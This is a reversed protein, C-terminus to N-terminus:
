SLFLSTGSPIVPLIVSFYPDEGPLAIQEELPYVFATDVGKQVAFGRLLARCRQLDEDKFACQATLCSFSRIQRIEIVDSAQVHDPVSIMVTYTDAPADPSEPTVFYGFCRMAAPDLEGMRIREAAWTGMIAWAEVEPDVDHKATYCAVRLSPFQSLSIKLPQQETMCYKEKTKSYIIASDLSFYLPTNTFKM